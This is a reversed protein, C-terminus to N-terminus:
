TLGDKKELVQVVEKERINNRRIEKIKNNKDATTEKRDDHNQSDNKKGMTRGKSTLCEQQRRKHQSSRKEFSYRGQYKNERPHTM